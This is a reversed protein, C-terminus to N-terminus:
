WASKINSAATAGHTPIVGKRERVIAFLYVMMWDAFGATLLYFYTSAKGIRGIILNVIQSWEGISEVQTLDLTKPLSRTDAYRELKQVSLEYIPSNDELTRSVPLIAGPGSKTQAEAIKLKALADDSVSVIQQLEKNNWAANLRLENVKVTYAAVLEDAQACGNGRGSSLPVFGPLLQSLDRMAALAAPGQGCNMPNKIETTLRSLATNVRSSRDTIGQKDQVRQATVKVSNFRHTSETVAEHLINKSEFTALMTNFVGLASITLLLAFLPAYKKIGNEEGGIFRAINWAIFAFIIGILYSLIPMQKQLLIVYGYSIFAVFVASYLATTVQIVQLRNKQELKKSAMIAEPAHGLDYPPM